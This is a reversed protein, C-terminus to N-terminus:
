GLKQKKKALELIQDKSDKKSQLAIDLASDKQLIAKINRIQQDKSFSQLTQNEINEIQEELYKKTHALMFNSEIEYALAKSLTYNLDKIHLIEKELEKNSTPTKFWNFLKSFFTM